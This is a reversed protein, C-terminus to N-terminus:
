AGRADLPALADRWLGELLAHPAAGPHPAGARALYLHRGIEAQQEINYARFPKLPDYEYRYARAGLAGLKALPMLAGRRAQWVHTLEHVFWAREALPAVAFDRAARWHSFIVAGGLPAMAGFGLRPAQVLTLDLFPREDSFMIRALALEEGTLRRRQFSSLRDIATV